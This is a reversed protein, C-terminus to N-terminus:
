AGITGIAALADARLADSIPASGANAAAASQGEASVVYSLFAKVLDTKAASDYETCAMQYSLLVIPYVGAATSDRKIDYALDNAARGPTQTSEDVIAAAADASPGVYSSGVKIKAIGLQGAQSADAYGITGAGGDVAQVVGSTGNAAEGGDVPWTDSAENPWGTPSVAALYQTFNKTTGSPDSRNVPSIATSPLSTGPNDAAIAPDDWSTITQNFIGALTDPSFQLDDIGDLNYIVAIPSIYVPVEVVNDSGGCQTAAQSIEEDSHPSDSGAFDVGGALFQERGGGSGVPDYNVTVDDHVGQFGAAWAQMAATQASSGAGNLDGSLSQGSSHTSDPTSGNADGGCGTLGVALAACGAAITFTRVSV